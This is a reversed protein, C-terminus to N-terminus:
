LWRTCPVPPSVTAFGAILFAVLVCIVCSINCDLCVGGQMFHAHGSNLKWAEHESCFDASQQLISQVKSYQEMDWYIQAQGMLVAHWMLAQSLLWTM